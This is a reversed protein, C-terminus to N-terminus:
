VAASSGKSLTRWEAFTDKGLTNRYRTDQVRYVLENGLAPGFAEKGLARYFASPLTDSVRCLGPNQYHYRKNLTMDKIEEMFNIDIYM